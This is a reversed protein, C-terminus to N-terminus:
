GENRKEIDRRHSVAPGVTDIVALEGNATRIHAHEIAMLVLVASKDRVREM